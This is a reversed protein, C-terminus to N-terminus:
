QKQQLKKLEGQWYVSQVPDPSVGGFGGGYLAIL